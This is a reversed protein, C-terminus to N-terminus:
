RPSHGKKMRSYHADLKKIASRALVDSRNLYHTDLISGVDKLSHGTITAIEPVSCGAQALRTVATGRLDHFSLDEINALRCAKRWSARFGGETWSSGKRTILVTQQAYGDANAEKASALVADLRSKLLRSVPIDVRIGTKGQKLHISRGDYQSWCLRLLDGQRQGTWLALEIALHLHKPAKSLFADIEAEGWVKESRAARYVRGGRECPNVAILGRNRSWSMVRALVAYAYDAQRRSKAALRDRWALFDGRARKDELAALPFDGFEREIALLHRGYDRRTRPALDAFEPSAGYRTALGKITDKPQRRRAEIAQYYASMFEPSGPNGPLRPGGKWAYYYVRFQGNNLRKRVRNIGKLPIRM